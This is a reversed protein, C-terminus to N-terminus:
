DHIDQIWKNKNYDDICKQTHDPQINGKGLAGPSATKQLYDM